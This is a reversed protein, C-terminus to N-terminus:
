AVAKAPRRRRDLEARIEAVRGRARRRTVEDHAGDRLRKWRGLADVLRPTSLDELRRGADAAGTNATPM